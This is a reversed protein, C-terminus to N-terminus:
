GGEGVVTRQEELKGDEVLRLLSPAPAFFSRTVYQYFFFGVIFFFVIIFSFLVIGHAHVDM